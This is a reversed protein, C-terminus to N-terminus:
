LQRPKGLTVGREIQMDHRCNTFVNARFVNNWPFFPDTALADALAPYATRWADNLPLFEAFKREFWDPHETWQRWRIGRADLHLGIHCDAFVNGEVRFLNGGGILVGRGLREFRNSVVSDGWDCDDFYVASTFQRKAPDGLDHFWNGCIMTGLESPNRGTYVAGADGTELLVRDFENSEIRHDNGSFIIANHPAERFVCGRVTQGCGQLLVGPTYTRCFRAWRRFRCNEVTIGSKTLTRRSGGALVICGAGLNGFRCGTVRSASGTLQLAKGGLNGFTCNTVVVRESRDLRVATNAHSCAFALGDFTFDTLGDAAVFTTTLSALVYEARGEGPQPVVYLRKAARDLYWEGPADLESLANLACYRRASFGWTKGGFGYQHRGLFRLTRTGADFAAGQVFSEAWDHCWYGHFWVGADFDWRAARPDDCIVADAAPRTGADAAEGATVVANTYTMWDTGNPYRALELPVGNRYLWPAPPIRFEKPWPPLDDPLLDGVDAVRCAVGNVTAARFKAAPVACGGRFTVTGPQAARWVAAGDARALALTNTVRYVGPAFVVEVRGGAPVQQRLARAADRIAGLDIAAGDPPPRVAVTAALLLSTSLVSM